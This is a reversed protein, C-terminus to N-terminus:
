PKKPGHMLLNQASRKKLNNFIKIFNKQGIVFTKQGHALLSQV